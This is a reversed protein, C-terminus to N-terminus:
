RKWNGDDKRREKATEEDLQDEVPNGPNKEGPRAKTQRDQKVKDEPFIIGKEESLKMRFALDEALMETELKAHEAKDKMIQEYDVGKEACLRQTSATGNQLEIKDGRAEKEPDLSKFEPFNVIIKVKGLSFNVINNIKYMKIIEWTYWETFWTLPIHWRGATNKVEITAGRYNSYNLADMDLFLWPYPLRVTMGMFMCIRKLFPDTNQASSSPSAFQVSGEKDTMMLSGPPIKIPKFMEEKGGALNKASELPSKSVFVGVFCASVRVSILLAEFYQATYRILGMLPTIVPVQRTQNSEELSAAKFLYALRKTTGDPMKKYKDVFTFNEKRNSYFSKGIDNPNPFLKRVWYGKIKGNPLYEVGERILKNTLLEDPTVIRGASILELYFGTKEVSPDGVFNILIDGKIVAGAIVQECFRKYPLEQEVDVRKLTEILNSNLEYEIQKVPYSVKIDISGSLIANLHALVIGHTFFNNKQMASSTLRIDRLTNNQILDYDADKEIGDSTWHAQDIFNNNYDTQWYAGM